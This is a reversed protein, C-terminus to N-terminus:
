RKRSAIRYESKDTRVIKEDDPVLETILRDAEDLDRNRIAVKVRLLIARRRKGIDLAASVLGDPSFDVTSSNPSTLHRLNGM